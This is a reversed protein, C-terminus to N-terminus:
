VLWCKFLQIFFTLSFNSEILYCLDREYYIVVIRQTLKFELLDVAEYFSIKYANTHINRRIDQM